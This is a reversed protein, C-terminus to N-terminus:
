FEVNQRKRSASFAQKKLTLRPDELHHGPETAARRCVAAFKERMNKLHRREASVGSRWNGYCDRLAPHNRENQNRARPFVALFLM